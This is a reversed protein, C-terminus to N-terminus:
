VERTLLHAVRLQLHRQEALNTTRRAALRYRAAAGDLDGSLELLHGRVALYRHHEVLPGEIKDLISLGAQPGYAMAAAVARNITVVQNGTLKELLGYLAEIQPWDTDEARAAHDHVSAIAAQLQYEGV